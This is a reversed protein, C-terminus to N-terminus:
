RPGCKQTASRVATSEVCIRIFERPEQTTRTTGIYRLALTSQCVVEWWDLSREVALLQGFLRLFVQLGLHVVLTRLVNGGSGLLALVALAM